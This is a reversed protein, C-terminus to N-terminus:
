RIRKRITKSCGRGRKKPIWSTLEIIARVLLYLIVGGIVVWVAIPASIGLLTFAGALLAVQENVGRLKNKLLKFANKLENINKNQILSLVKNKVQNFIQIAENSANPPPEITEIGCSASDEITSKDITSGLESTLQTALVNYNDTELIIEKLSSILKGQKLYTNTKM